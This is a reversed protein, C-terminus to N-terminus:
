LDASGLVLREAKDAAERQMSPLVHSYTDLTVRIQSHGLREQVVKPHEGIALLQTAHSHRLDHFRVVPLGSRKVAQKFNRELSRPQLPKGNTAPFVMGSYHWEGPQAMLQQQRQTLRHRKLIAVVAPGIPVARRSRDTKPEVLILGKRTNQLSRNVHVVGRELDVDDWKLGLLEGLRMGTLLALAYVPYLRKAYQDDATFALFAQAHEPTWITLQKREARPPDVVQAVNREIYGYKVAHGLAESLVAHIYRVSRASLGGEKGDARGGHLKEAYLRQIQIPTLKGLKVKGLAPKLHRRVMTEYSEFTTQRLQTRGYSELWADLYAGLMMEPPKEALSGRREIEAEFDALAKLAERKSGCFARQTQRRVGYDDRGLEVIMAYRREGRQRLRGRM